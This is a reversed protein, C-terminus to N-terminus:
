FRIKNESNVREGEIDWSYKSLKNHSSLIKQLNKDIINVKKGKNKIAEEEIINQKNQKETNESNNM